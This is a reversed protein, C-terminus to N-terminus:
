RCVFLCSTAGGGSLRARYAEAPLFLHPYEGMARDIQRLPSLDDLIWFGRGSTAAVLDNDQIILDNIEDFRQKVIQIKELM